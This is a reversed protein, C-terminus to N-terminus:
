KIVSKPVTIVPRLGQYNNVIYGPDFTGPSVRWTYSSNGFLATATWYGSNSADTISCGSSTCANTYDFLWKYPNSGQTTTTNTHSNSSLYTWSYPQTTEVFSSYGTIAAIENATILRAKYSSYNITYNATGNNLSYSDTRTPVGAWSGTDAQLKILIESPGSTNNISSNWDVIATTNHDLIMNLNPSSSDVDGFTYWKMCGTKTGTTSVADASSCIEGAVPNFYVSTGDDYLTLDGDLITIKELLFAKKATYSGNSINASLNCNTDVSIVGRNPLNGKIELSPSVGSNTFNYTTTLEEGKLNQVHCQDSVASVINNATTEFAGRKSHKIINNVVPIAILAIIGLILIVALLEILTFGKKYLFKKLDLYRSSM